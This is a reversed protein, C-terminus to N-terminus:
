GKEEIWEYHAILLEAVEEDHADSAPTLNLGMREGAISRLHRAVDVKKKREILMQAILPVYGDYEDRAQPIKAVGIPDWVCHLIEGVREAVVDYRIRDPERTM